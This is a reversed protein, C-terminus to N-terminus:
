QPSAFRARWRLVAPQWQAAHQRRQEDDEISRLRSMGQLFRRRTRIGGVVMVLACSGMLVDTEFGVILLSKWTSVSRQVDLSLQWVQRDSVARVADDFSKHSDLERFLQQWRAPTPVLLSVARGSSAYAIAADSADAPFGQTYSSLPLIRDALKAQSLARLDDANGAEGALLRAAGEDFWRPLVADGTAQRVMVHAIEHKLTAHRNQVRHEATVGVVIRREKPVAAGAAWAPVHFPPELTAASAMTAVVAIDITSPCGAPGLVAALEAIDEMARTHIDDAVASPVDHGTVKVTTACDDAQAASSLLLLSLIAAMMAADHEGGV